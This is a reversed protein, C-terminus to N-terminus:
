LCRRSGCRLIDGVRVLLFRMRRSSMVVYRPIHRVRVAGGRADIYEGRAPSMRMASYSLSEYNKYQLSLDRSAVQEREFYLDSEQTHRVVAKRSRGM